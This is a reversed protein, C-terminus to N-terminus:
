KGSSRMRGELLERERDCANISLSDIGHDDVFGGSLTVEALIRVCTFSTPGDSDLSWSPKMKGCPLSRTACTLKASLAIVALPKM